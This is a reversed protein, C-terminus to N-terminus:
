WVTLVPAAQGWAWLHVFGPQPEPRGASLPFGKAKLRAWSEKYGFIM